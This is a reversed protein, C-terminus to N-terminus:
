GRFKKLRTFYKGIANGCSSTLKAEISVPLRAPGGNFLGQTTLLLYTVRTKSYSLICFQSLKQNGAFVLESLTKRRKRLFMSGRIM